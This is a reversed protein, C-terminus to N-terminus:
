GASDPLRHLKGDFRKQLFDELQRALAGVALVDIGTRVGMRALMHATDETPINGTAGAIFPCGGMGGLSTDFRDVGARLGAVVNALGMGRTDHLHLVMPLGGIVDRVAHVTDEVTRPDGMGTSDALSITDAGADALERAMARVITLPVDGATHYGFVVQLGAHVTCGAQKARAIMARAQVRADAVSMGANSQSQREDPAISVDLVRLGTALAREVGKVNLVLGSYTVGTPQSPLLAECLQEADAMQPVRGPHVFSAIQVHRLGAQVLGGIIGLKLATPIFTREVQFGDRPGVDILLVEGPYAMNSFSAERM